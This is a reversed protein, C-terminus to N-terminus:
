GAAEAWAALFLLAATEAIRVARSAGLPKIATRGTVKDRGFGGLHVAVPIVSGGFLLTTNAMAAKQCPYALRSPKRGSRVLLWVLSAIGLIYVNALIIKRFRGGLRNLRWGGERM